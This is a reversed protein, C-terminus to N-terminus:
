GPPDAGPKDMAQLSTYAPRPSLDGRLIGFAWKEDTNPVVQQFNLNWIFMHTVYLTNARVREFAQVIFDAQDQESNCGAYEYGSVPGAPGGPGDITAWGFETLWITKGTIGADLMDQYLQEYRNFFFSDHTSWGGGCTATSHAPNSITDNPANPGGNPHVGLVEFYNAVEGGNVAWLRQLYSRDDIATPSDGAPTMAGLVVIADPDGEKVGMYGQKILELYEQYPNGQWLTPWERQLNAENWLEYAQVRGRYRTALERMFTRFTTPDTPPGHGTGAMEPLKYFDPAKVVSLFVYLGRSNMTDVFRDTADWYYVGPQNEVEQWPIQQKVWNLDANLILQALPADDDRRFEGQVGYGSLGSAPMVRPTPIEAVPTPTPTPTPTPAPAAGGSVDEPVYVHGAAFSSAPGFASFAQWGDNPYQKNRLDDGLLRLKVPDGPDTPHYEMVAAQFYQRIFGPTAEPIHLTGAENTDARAETKPYGFSDVGGLQNYFDLFGIQTGDVSLNSVKHGWPGLLDGSNPNTTGPEVGQDESGGLGGGFYDWALRRELVYVDAGLDPRAHFDVVGRQYYQTLTGSEEILVESTPYGWRTLGGTREFHEMFDAVLTRGELLVQLRPVNQALDPNGPAELYLSDLVTITEFVSSSQARLATSVAVAILAVFVGLVLKRM